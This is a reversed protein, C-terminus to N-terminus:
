GSPAILSLFTTYLNPWIGGIMFNVSSDSFFYIGSV